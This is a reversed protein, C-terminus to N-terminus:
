VVLAIVAVGVMVAGVVAKALTGLLRGWFASEGIKVSEELSRGKWQEGLVAGAFAGVGALLVAGLVPGIMPIPVGVFLGVMGGALSGALAMVAGRRSGGARTVGMAGALFELLEGLLALLLLVVATVWGIGVSSQGPVLIVYVVV